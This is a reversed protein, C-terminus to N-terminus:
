VTFQGMTDDGTEGISSVGDFWSEHIDLRLGGAFPNRSKGADLM